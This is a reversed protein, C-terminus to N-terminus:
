GKIHFHNEIERLYFESECSLNLEKAEDHFHPNKPSLLPRNMQYKKQFLLSATRAFIFYFYLSKKFEVVTFYGYLSTSIRQRLLLLILCTYLFMSM